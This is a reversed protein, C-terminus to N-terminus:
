MAEEIAPFAADRALSLDAVLAGRLRASGEPDGARLVASPHYTVLCIPALPSALPRGRDRGPTVQRGFLAGAATAGLAVLVAPRVRDIEALLWPKCSEVERGRPRQHLRWKGRPQFKFHKVANTLYLARRDLGAARLAEDLVQGAPGVFPHGALDEDNGPQEGVLMIRADAPGEGFVTQTAPQFLPCGRCTRAAHALESLTAAPTPPFYARASTTLGPDAMRAARTRAEAVLPAILRSEPLTALPARAARTPHRRPQGPRPQLHRRLVHAVPRGARRRRPGRARPCRPGFRLLHGNWHASADPTFIVWSMAHFRDVFFPAVRPLVHHDPRHWAVFVEGGDPAPVKRFRVFAQMKHADRDVSRAMQQLRHVDPDAGDELM